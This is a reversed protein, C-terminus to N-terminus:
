LLIHAIALVHYLVIYVTSYQVTSNVAIQTLGVWQDLRVLFCYVANRTADQSGMTHVYMM